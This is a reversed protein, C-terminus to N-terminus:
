KSNSLISYCLVAMQKPASSIVHQCAHINKSVIVIVHCMCRERVSKEELSRVLCIFLFTFFWFSSGGEEFLHSLEKGKIFFGTGGYAGADSGSDGKGVVAFM